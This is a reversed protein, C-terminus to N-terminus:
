PSEGVQLVTMMGGHAHPLIHCHTMWYGPNNAFLKIRVTDRIALNLTDEVRKYPSPIDNISLVEFSHGHLHFPHESASVNRVEIIAESNLPLANVTVDPFVEGNIMWVGSSGDGQFVYILDVDLSDESPEEDSFPWNLPAPLPAPSAVELTLLSASDGYSPGGHLAYPQHTLDLDDEGVWWSLEARDGPALLLPSDSLRYPLWGQDAAIQSFAGSLDLYAANSANLLRMHVVEGGAVEIGPTTFGNVTWHSASGHGGHGGHEQWEGWSDFIAVVERDPVPATPDEVILMGYLGLDVQQETDFHPHYWFTGVQNVTFAYTFSEGSGIPDETWTVGDMDYPVDLGHWHITTATDLENNLTLELRDGVNLRLTPGPMQSNYAYGMAAQGNILFMQHSATLEVQLVDPDPNLDEAEAPNSWGVHGSAPTPVGNLDATTCAFLPFLLLSAKM